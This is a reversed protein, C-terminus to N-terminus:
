FSKKEETMSYTLRPLSVRLVPVSHSKKFFVM